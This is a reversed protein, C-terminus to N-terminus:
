IRMVRRLLYFVGVAVVLYCMDMIVPVSILGQLFTLFGPLIETIRM